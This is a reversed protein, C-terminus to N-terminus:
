SLTDRLAACRECTPRTVHDHMPVFWHGCLAQVPSGSLTAETLGATPAYHALSGVAMRGPAPDAPPAMSSPVPITAAYSMAHGAVPAATWAVADAAIAALVTRTGVSVTAEPASERPAIVVIVQAPEDGDAGELSLTLDFLPARGEAPVVVPVPGADGTALTEALLARTTRDLATKWDERREAAREIRAILEDSDQPIEGPDLDSGASAGDPHAAVLWAVDHGSELDAQLLVTGRWGGAAFTAVPGATTEVSEARLSEVLEDRESFARILPHELRDLAPVARLFAGVDADSASGRAHRALLDSLAHASRQARPTDWGATLDDTICRLTM